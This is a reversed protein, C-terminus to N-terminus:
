ILFMIKIGDKSFSTHNETNSRNGLGLYKENADEFKTWHPNSQM